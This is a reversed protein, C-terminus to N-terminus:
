KKEKLKRKMRAIMRARRAEPTNGTIMESPVDAKRTGLIDNFANGFLEQVKLKISELDRMIIEKTFEGTRSKEEMLAKLDSQIKQIGPHNQLEGIKGQIDDFSSVDIDLHSFDLREFISLVLAAMKTEKLFELFETISSQKTDDNLIDDLESRQGIVSKLMTSLLPLNEKLKSDIKGHFMSAILCGQMNGWIVPHSAENKWLESLDYGFVVRPVNWLGPDKKMIELSHEVFVAHFTDIEDTDVRTSPFQDPFKLNLEKIFKKFPKIFNM